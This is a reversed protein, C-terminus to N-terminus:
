PRLLQKVEAFMQRNLLFYYSFYTAVGLAVSGALQVVLGHNDLILKQALLVTLVMLGTGFIAHRLVKVYAVLTLGILRLTLSTTVLFAVPFALWSYALGELGYSAGILFSLALISIVILFNRITVEPRGVAFELPSNVLHIVRFAATVSLIKMPLIAPLWKESLLLPVASDAVLFIGWCIPLSMVALLNVMKLYYHSLLAPDNQVKSFAPFALHSIASGSKELPMFAFQVAIAYYGLQSKGLIKGAILIDMSAYLYWVLRAIAVKSGFGILSRVGSLSFSLQPKWPHFLLYLLTRVIENLIMGYALSWVGFGENALWLTAFAACVSAALEAQSHRDFMMERSLMSGSVTGLSRIVFIISLVRIVDTFRPEEYFLAVLPASLFAFACLALNLFLVAWGINSRDEQNLDKKQVIGASLGLENFLLIFSVYVGAIAILGYDDPTLIRIVYITITWSIVQSVVKAATLWFVGEVMRRKLSKEPMAAQKFQIAWSNTQARRGLHPSTACCKGYRGGGPAVAKAAAPM